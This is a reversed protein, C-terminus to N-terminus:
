DAEYEYAKAVSMQGNLVFVIHDEGGQFHTWKKKAWEFIEDEVANMGEQNKVEAYRRILEEPVELKRLRYFPSVNDPEFFRTPGLFRSRISSKELLNAILETEVIGAIHQAAPSNLDIGPATTM